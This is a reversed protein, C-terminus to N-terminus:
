GAQYAPMHQVKEDHYKVKSVRRNGARTSARFIGSHALWGAVMEPCGDVAM